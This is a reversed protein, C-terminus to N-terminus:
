SKPKTVFYENFLYACIGGLLQALVYSLYDTTNLNNKLFMMTSVAPNYNGGSVKGGFYIVAALSLGIPLAEGSTLIVSLFIFTGIFEVLYKSIAM